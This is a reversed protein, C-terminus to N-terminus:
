RWGGAIVLVMVMAALVGATTMSLYTCEVGVALQDSSYLQCPMATRTVGLKTEGAVVGRGEDEGGRDCRFTWRASCTPRPRSSWGNGVLRGEQSSTSPTSPMKGHLPSCLIKVKENTVLRKSSSTSGTRLTSPIFMISM